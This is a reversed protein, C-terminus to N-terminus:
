IYKESYFHLFEELCLGSNKMFEAAETGVYRYHWPEYSIGTIHEKMRPYRLVFGFRQANKCLWKGQISKYFNEEVDDADETGFDVALGANHESCGPYALTKATEGAAESETFGKGILEGVSKEWLRQQYDASRYASIIKILVGDKEAQNLLLRCQNCAQCELQKNQIDMLAIQKDFDKPLPNFKDILMLYDM